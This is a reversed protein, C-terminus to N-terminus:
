TGTRCFEVFKPATRCLFVCLTLCALYGFLPYITRVLEMFGFTSFPLALFVFGVGVWKELLPTTTCLRHSLAYISSVATTLLALLMGVIYASHAWGGVNNVVLLMPIPETLAQAAYRALASTILCIVLGMTVGGIVGSWWAEAASRLSTGVALLLPLALAVNYGAYILASLLWHRPTLGWVIAEMYGASPAQLRHKWIIGFIISLLIAVMAANAQLFGKRGTLLILGTAVTLLLAGVRPHLGYTSTLLSAAGAIMIATVLFLFSSLITQVLALRSLAESSRALNLLYGGAFSFIVVTTIAGGLGLSGFPLFFQASERGSLLGAGVVAGLYAAAATGVYYIGARM